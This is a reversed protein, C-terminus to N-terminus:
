QKKAAAKAARAVKQKAKSIDQERESIDQEREFSNNTLPAKVYRILMPVLRYVTVKALQPYKNIFEQQFLILGFPDDGEMKGVAHVNSVPAAGLSFNDYTNVSYNMTGDSRARSRILLSPVRLKELTNGSIDHGFTWGDTGDEDM